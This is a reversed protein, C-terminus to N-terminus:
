KGLCFRAFVEQIIDESVTEGIMEGLLEWAQRIDVEVFDLAAEKEVATKADALAAEARLLLDQQRVNTVMRNEQQSIQGGYVLSLIAEELERTAAEEVLSTDIMVAGPLLRHLDEETVKRGLDKKNILIITKRGGIHAAIERDEERLPLSGDIMFLILDARNFAEKSKEIGIREIRDETRHIGATDTLYVPIGRLSLVEEITDRTTGPIDTVIARSEKLLANMLSSKGVNPRGAITVRLGDRIMRGTEATDSLAKIEAQIKEIGIKLKAYTLEEIDEEPYDLNVAIQVLLEMLGARQEKINTSLGGEMQDLAVEFGKDTKAKILDIVAEAQSLDIRGNLFARKTFEGPEAARAGQKLVLAFIKGLAVISGHCQIEAVDERTYSGPAKMLVTLVEDIVAGDEPSIIHGYELRRNVIPKKNQAAFPRFIAKVIDEANEGSIRVIGIGGEGYATAVAAITDEM